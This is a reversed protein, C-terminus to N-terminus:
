IRSRVKDWSKTILFSEEMQAVMDRFKPWPVAFSLVDSPVCPRASVDFMGLVARPHESLLEQYPHYVISSCGSGFPAIVAQPDVEDFNALTFLGSLTDPTAFFIVIEPADDGDLHDWRKFLVARAPAEFSPQSELYHEVLEPSRKYREGEMEGPIGCSLFYPFNPRMEPEFGLYRRAGGCPLTDVDFHRSAGHRVSALDCILCHFEEKSPATDSSPAEDTYSLVIPLEAGPFYTQWHKLFQQKIAIDM